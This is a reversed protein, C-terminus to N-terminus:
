FVSVPLFMPPRLGSSATRSIRVISLCGGSEPTYRKSEAIEDDAAVGRPM